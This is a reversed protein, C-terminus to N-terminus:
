CRRPLFLKRLSVSFPSNLDIPKLKELPGLSSRNTQLIVSFMQFRYRSNILSILPVSTSPRSNCLIDSLHTSDSSSLRRNLYPDLPILRQLISTVRGSDHSFQLSVNARDCLRYYPRSSTPVSAALTVFRLNTRPPAPCVARLLWIRRGTRRLKSTQGSKTRM